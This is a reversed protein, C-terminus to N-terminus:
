RAGFLSDGYIDKIVDRLELFLNAHAVVCEVGGHVM